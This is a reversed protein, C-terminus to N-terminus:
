LTFIWVSPDQTPRISGASVGLTLSLSQADADTANVRIIASGSSPLVAPWTTVTAAPAANLAPDLYLSSAQSAPSRMGYSNVAQVSYSYTQGTTGTRDRYSTGTTTDLLAGDRLVKYSTAGTVTGWALKVLSASASTATFAPAAPATVSSPVARVTGDAFLIAKYSDFTDVTSQQLGVAALIAQVEARSKGDAIHLATYVKDDDTGYVVDRAQEAAAQASQASIASNNASTAADQATQVLGTFSAILFAYDGSRWWVVPNDDCFFEETVGDHTTRVDVKLLGNRDYASLPTTFNTDGKAYIKGVGNKVIVDQTPEKAVASPFEYRVAM